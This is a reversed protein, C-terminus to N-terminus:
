TTVSGMEDFQSEYYSRRNASVLERLEQKNRESKSLAGTGPKGNQAIIKQIISQYQGNLRAPTFGNTVTWKDCTEALTLFQDFSKLVDADTSSMSKAELRARLKGTLEKVGKWEKQQWDFPENGFINKYHGEFVERMQYTLTPQRPSPPPASNPPPTKEKKKSTAPKKRPANAGNEGKSDEKDEKNDEKNVKPVKNGSGHSSQERKMPVKNGIKPSSQEWANEEKMWKVGVRLLGTGGVELLGYEAMRNIMKLLGRRTIGVFDAIEERTDPCWGPQTTNPDAIRYHVYACLAYEDRTIGLRKRASENILTTKKLMVADFKQGAGKPLITLHPTMM